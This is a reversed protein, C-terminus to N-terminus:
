ILGLGRARIVAARRGAVNLKRYIHAMHSKITNISLFTQDAIDQSTMTTPLFHLIEREKQTLAEVLEHETLSGYFEEARRM